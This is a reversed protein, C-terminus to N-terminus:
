GPRGPPRLTIAQAARLCALIDHALQTPSRQMAADALHLDVVRGNLDVAVTIAYDVSSQRVRVQQRARGPAATDAVPKRPEITM